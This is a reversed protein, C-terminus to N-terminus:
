FERVLFLAQYDNDALLGLTSTQVKYPLTGALHYPEKSKTARVHQYLNKSSVRNESIHHM